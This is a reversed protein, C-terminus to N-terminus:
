GCSPLRRHALHERVKAWLASPPFPTGLFVTHPNGSAVPRTLDSYGSIFRVCLHPNGASATSRGPNVSLARRDHEVVVM